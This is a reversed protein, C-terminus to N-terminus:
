NERLFNVLLIREPLNDFITALYAMVSLILSPLEKFICLNWLLEREKQVETHREKSRTANDVINNKMERYCLKSNLKM